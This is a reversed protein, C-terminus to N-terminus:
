LAPTFGAGVIFVGHEINGALLTIKYALDACWATWYNNVDSCERSLRSGGM